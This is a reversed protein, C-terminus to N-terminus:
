GCGKRYPTSENKTEVQGRKKTHTHKSHSKFTQIHTRANAAFRKTMIVPLFNPIKSTCQTHINQQIQSVPTFRNWYM